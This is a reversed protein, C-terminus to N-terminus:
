QAMWMGAAYVVTPHLLQQQPSSQRLLDTCIDAAPPVQGREAELRAYDTIEDILDDLEQIDDDHGAVPGRQAAFERQRGVDQVGFSHAGGPHTLEHSV